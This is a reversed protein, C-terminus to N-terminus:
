SPRVIQVRGSAVALRLGDSWLMRFCTSPLLVSELHRAPEAFDVRSKNVQKRFIHLLDNWV